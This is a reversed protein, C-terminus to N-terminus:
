ILVVFDEQIVALPTGGTAYGVQPMHQRPSPAPSLPVGTRTRTTNYRHGLVQSPYGRGVPLVQSLIKSLSRTDGFFPGPVLPLPTGKEGERFPGPVLSWLHSRAGSVVPYWSEGRSPCFLTFVNGGM